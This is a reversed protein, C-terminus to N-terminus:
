AAIATLSIESGPVGTCGPIAKPACVNWRGWRNVAQFLGAGSVTNKENARTTSVADIEATLSSMGTCWCSLLCDPKNTGSKTRYKRGVATTM